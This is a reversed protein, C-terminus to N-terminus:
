NKSYQTELWNKEGEEKMKMRLSKAEKEDEAMQTTNDIYRFNNNRKSIKIGAQSEDLGANLNFLCPSLICSQRVEKGIKIWDVTEHGTRVKAEQGSYLNRLLCTLHVPVGINELIKWLKNQDVCDFAKTYDTLCFYINKQFERTKEM